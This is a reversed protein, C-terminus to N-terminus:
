YKFSPTPRARAELEVDVCGGLVIYSGSGTWAAIKQCTTKVEPPIAAWRAKLGDYSQQEGEICATRAFSSNGLTGAAAECLAPVDFRPPADEALAATAAVSMLCLLLISKLM